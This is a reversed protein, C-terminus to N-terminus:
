PAGDGAIWSASAGNYIFDNQDCPTTGTQLPTITIEDTGTISTVGSNSHKVSFNDNVPVSGLVTSCNVCEFSPNNEKQQLPLTVASSSSAGYANRLFVQIGREAKLREAVVFM